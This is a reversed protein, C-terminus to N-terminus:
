PKAKKWYEDFFQEYQAHIQASTIEIATPREGWLLNIVKDKIIIVGLPTDNSCFRIKINHNGTFTKKLASRVSHHGLLRDNVHKEALKQHFSRLFLSAALTYYENKFAFAAYSGGPELEDAIRNFLGKFANFGEHVVAVQKADSFKKKLELEALIATFRKKRDDILGLIDKPDAAQYHRTKSVIIYSALGKERLKDLTEYVKSHQLMTKAAIPGVTVSGLELLAIYVKIERDSFGLEKFIASEM